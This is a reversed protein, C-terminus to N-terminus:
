EIETNNGNNRPKNKKREVSSEKGSDRGIEMNNSKGRYRVESNAKKENKDRNHTIIVNTACGTMGYAYLIVIIIKIKKM